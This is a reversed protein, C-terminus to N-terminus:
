QEKEMLKWRIPVFDRFFYSPENVWDVDKFAKAIYEMDEIREEDLALFMEGESAILLFVLLERRANSVRKQYTMDQLEPYQEQDYDYFEGCYFVAEVESFDELEIIEVVKRYFSAKATFAFPIMRYTQDKYLIMFVPMLEHKMQYVAVHMAAFKKFTAKLCSKVESFLVNDLSLRMSSIQMYKNEGISMYLGVQEGENVEEGEEISYDNTFSIEKCQVLGFLKSIMEKLMTCKPCACPFREGLETIFADMKLLGERIVPYFEVETDEERFLMKASFHVEKLGLEEFFMEKVYEIVNSMSSEIDMILCSDKLRYIGEPRYIDIRLEKQLQFPRQKSTRNRAEKLWKLNEDMLYKECLKQYIERNEATEVGKQVMFTINRFESFFMDLNSVDEFFNNGKGFADLARLASYYKQLATGFIDHNNM